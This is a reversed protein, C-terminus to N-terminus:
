SQCVNMWICSCFEFYVLVLMDLVVTNNMLENYNYLMVTDIYYHYCTINGDDDDFLSVDFNGQPNFAVSVAVNGRQHRSIPLSLCSTLPSTTQKPLPSSLPLLPRFRITTAM